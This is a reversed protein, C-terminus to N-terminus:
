SRRSGRWKGGRSTLDVVVGEVQLVRNTCEAWLNDVAQDDEAPFPM